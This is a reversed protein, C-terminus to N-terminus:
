QGLCGPGPDDADIRTIVHMMAHVWSEELVPTLGVVPTAQLAAVPPVVIVSEDICVVV